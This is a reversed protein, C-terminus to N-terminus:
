FCCIFFDKDNRQRKNQAVRRPRAIAHKIGNKHAVQALHLQIGNTKGTYEVRYQEHHTETKRAAGLHKNGAAHAFQVFVLHAVYHIGGNNRHQHYRANEKRKDFDKRVFYQAEHKRIFIDNLFALLKKVVAHPPKYGTKHTKNEDCKIRADPASGYKGDRNPNHSKKIDGKIVAQNIAFEPQRM